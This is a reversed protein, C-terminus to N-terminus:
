LFGKKDQHRDLSQDKRQDLSRLAENALKFVIDGHDLGQARLAEYGKAAEAQRRSTGPKRDGSGNNSAAGRGGQDSADGPKSAGVNAGPQFGGEYGGAMRHFVMRQVARAAVEEAEHIHHSGGEGTGQQVHYQEHAYLAMHEPNSTDFDESVIVTRDVTMAEAGLAKLAQSAVPGSYAEGGGPISVKNLDKRDLLRDATDEGLVRRAYPM